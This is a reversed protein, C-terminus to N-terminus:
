PLSCEASSTSPCRNVVTRGTASVQIERWQTATPTARALKLTVASAVAGTPEYVVIANAAAAAANTFAYSSNLAEHKLLVSEGATFAGSNDADHVVIWGLRWDTGTCTAADSSVCVLVRANRKIAESRATQAAAVFDNAYTTLRSNLLMADFAPPAILVVLVLIAVSVMLEILSFGRV